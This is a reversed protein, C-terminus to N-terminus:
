IKAFSRLLVCTKVHVNFCRFTRPTLTRVWFTEFRCIQVSEMASPRKGDLLMVTNAWMVSVVDLVCMKVHISFCKFPFWTGPAFNEDLITNQVRKFCEIVCAIPLTEM